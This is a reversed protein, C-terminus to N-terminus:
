TGRIAEPLLQEMEAPLKFDEPGPRFARPQFDYRQRIDSDPFVLDQNQRLVMQSNLGKMGPLMSALVVGRALLEPPLSLLREPRGFASFVRAAMDRYSLISGGAVEFANQGSIRTLAIRVMLQALDAVHIPQRLGVAAGALPFFGFKGIFRAMRSINEDQGCGYILTPRLIVLGIGRALCASMLRKESQLIGEVQQREAQDGSDVKSFVSSSSLCVIRQLSGCRHLWEEALSIPGASLLVVPQSSNGPAYATTNSVLARFQEPHYWTLCTGSPHSIQEGTTLKRSLAVANTGTNMLVHLVHLGVQATAGTVLVQM